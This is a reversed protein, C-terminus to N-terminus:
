VGGEVWFTVSARLKQNDGRIFETEQKLVSRPVCSNRQFPTVKPAAPWFRHCRCLPARRMIIIGPRSVGFFIGDWSARTRPSEVGALRQPGLFICRMMWVKEPDESELFLLQAVILNAMNDEVGGVCFIVREKLLRSFIDYSREGRATQEVVM